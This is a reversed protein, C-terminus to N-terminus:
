SATIQIELTWVEGTAKTGKSAIARILNKPTGNSNRVSFEEWAQEAVGDAFSGKFDVRRTTASLPFTAEMGVYVPNAILETDTSAPSTNDTGTGIDALANTFYDVANDETILDWIEDGGEDLLLNVPALKPHAHHINVEQLYNEGLKVGIQHRNYGKENLQQIADNGIGPIYVEKYKEVIIKETHFGAQGALLLELGKSGMTKIAAMMKLKDWKPAKNLIDMIHPNELNYGPMEDLNYKGFKHIIPVKKGAISTFRALSKHLGLNEKFSSAQGYHVSSDIKKLKSKKENYM